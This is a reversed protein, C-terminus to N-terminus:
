RVPDRAESTRGARHVFRASRTPRAVRLVIRTLEPFCGGYRIPHKGAIGPSVYMLTRGSQFFGRDYRRSYLSPMFVPGVLPLRIPGAPNHGALMLDIGCRAATPFRDPTHSLLLRFDAEPVSRIDLAPGWPYSSGGIALTSAEIELSHWRGELDAYGARELAHR